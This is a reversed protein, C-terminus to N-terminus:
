MNSAHELREAYMAVDLRIRQAILEVNEGDGSLVDNALAFLHGVIIALKRDASLQARASDLAVRIDYALEKERRKATEARTREPPHARLWRNLFAIRERKATLIRVTRARGPDDPLYRVIITDLEPIQAVIRKREALADERSKPIYTDLPTSKGPSHLKHGVHWHGCFECEYAQMSDGSLALKAATEEAEERTLRQKRLCKLPLSSSETTM